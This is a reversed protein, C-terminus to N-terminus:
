ILKQVELLAVGFIPPTPLSKETVEYWYSRDKSPLFYQCSIIRTQKVMLKLQAPTYWRMFSNQARRKAIPTTILLKGGPKLVRLCEEVAKVDSTVRDAKGYLTDLGIHELTSLLIVYDFSNNKFHNQCIDGQVATFHPYTIDSSRIDIGTVDFGATALSFSVTSELWGVDLVKGKKKLDIRSFIWPIEIIRENVDIRALRKRLSSAFMIQSFPKWNWINTLSFDKSQYHIPSTTTYPRLPAYFLKLFLNWM